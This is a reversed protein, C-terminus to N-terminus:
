NIDKIYVIICTSKDQVSDITLILGEGFRMRLRLYANLIGTSKGKDMQRIDAHIIDDRIKQLKDVEMGAGNDTVGIEVGYSTKMATVTILVDTISEEFGYVCANEVFSIVTLKPIKLNEVEKNLNIEYELRDGFRYKQLRLYAEIFSFEEHLFITDHSWNSMERLLLSMERMINATETEGKLMSRMCISELTNNIFHPNVQSQLANLEARMKLLELQNKEETKTTITDILANIRLLMSNFHRILSGIEDKGYDGPFPTLLKPKDQIADFRDKLLEIRQIISREIALTILTPIFLLVVLLLFININSKYLKGWMTDSPDIVYANWVTNVANISIQSIRGNLNQDLESPTIITLDDTDTYENNNSKYILNDEADYLYLLFDPSRTELIKHIENADITICLYCTPEINFYDMLRLIYYSEHSSNQNSESTPTRWLVPNHLEEQSDPYWDLQKAYSLQYFFGGNLIGQNDAFITIQQISNTKAIYNLGSVKQLSLYADYYDNATPYTDSLFNDLESDTYISDAATECEAFLSEMDYALREALFNRENEQEKLENQSIVFIILTALLIIPILVCFFYLLLFKVRLRYNNMYILPKPLNKM